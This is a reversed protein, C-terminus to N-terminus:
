KFYKELDKPTGWCTYKNVQFPTVSYGNLVCEDMVIDLYFEGNIRRNKAIMQESCEIFIEATKFSFCGIIAHDNIPQDSIPTKCSIREAIGLSNIKVWGYMQPNHLVTPNNKFTWVVADYENMITSFKLHNYEMGNDCAGITLQDDPNLYDKSLLCTSAQGETLQSVSIIIAGPFYNILIKDIESEKIHNDRCVFIWQDAKPLSQAARVVMPLGNIDILPKPTAYGKDIFRQGEGAMPILNVKRM